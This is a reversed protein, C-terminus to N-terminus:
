YDISSIIGDFDNHIVTWKTMSETVMDSEKLKINQTSNKSVQLLIDMSEKSSLGYFLNIKKNDNDMVFLNIRKGNNLTVQMMKLENLSAYEHVDKAEFLTTIIKKIDSNFEYLGDIEAVEYYATVGKKMLTTQAIQVNSFNENKVMSKEFTHTSSGEKTKILVTQETLQMSSQKYFYNILYIGLGFTILILISKIM